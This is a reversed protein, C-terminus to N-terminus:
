TKADKVDKYSSDAEKEGDNPSEHHQIEETEPDSPPKSHEEGPEFIYGPQIKDDGKEKSVGDEV